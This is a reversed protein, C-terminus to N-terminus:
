NYVSSLLYREIRSRLNWKLNSVEFSPLNFIWFVWFCDFFKSNNCIPHKQKDRFECWWKPILCCCHFFSWGELELVDISYHHCEDVSKKTLDLLDSSTSFSVLTRLRQLLRQQFLPVFRGCASLAEKFIEAAPTKFIMLYIIALLIM